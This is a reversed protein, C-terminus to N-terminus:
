FNDKRRGQVAIKQERTAERDRLREANERGIEGVKRIRPDDYSELKSFRNAWGDWMLSEKGTWGWSSGYVSGAVDDAPYGKDLAAQAQNSWEGEDPHGQLPVLHLSSLHNQALLHKYVIVSDDVLLKIIPGALDKTEDIEQILQMREEVGLAKAAETLSERDRYVRLSDEEMRAELWDHALRSDAKFMSKLDHAEKVHKVVALRWVERLSTRVSPPTSRRWEGMAAAGAIEGDEHRLLLLVHHEPIESRMCSFEIANAMGSLSDLSLQLLKQSPASMSLVTLAGIWMLRPHKFCSELVIELQSANVTKIRDIFPHILDSPAQVEILAKIWAMPQDTEKAIEICVSPSMRPWTRGSLSAEKEFMVLRKAIEQPSSKAWDVALTNARRLTTKQFKDINRLREIPFLVEYEPDIEISLKTRLSEATRKAWQLIGPHDKALGVVDKLFQIAGQRKIEMIQEPLNQVPKRMYAWNEVIDQVPRWDKIQTSQLFSHVRPWMNSLETLEDANLYGWRLTLTDGAGPDQESTEFDPLLSLQVANLTVGLNNGAKHWELAVDLLTERRPVATQKGPWASKIWDEILRLPQDPHSHPERKDSTAATLLHPIVVGPIHFLAPRIISPMREPHDQLVWQAEAAGLGAYSTWVLGSTSQEVLNRLLCDPVAGERWCSGILTLAADDHSPVLQIVETIDSSLAGRFFADRVLAHRLAEPRVSLTTENVEDIVGGAALQTVSDRVRMEPLGLYSAAVKLRMGADGGVALISLIQIAEKGVLPEFTLRVDTSLAEGLAVQRTSGTLCLRALTVALGPRGDAQDVLEHLLGNPGQIGVNKIVELIEDRTLLRLERISSGPVQLAAAVQDRQGPWCNALIRFDAHTDLRWQRLQRILDLNSHADDLILARPNESRLNKAIQPLDKSVIFLGDVPSSVAHLLFTKGSGPPGCLLLDGPSNELWSIDDSRGILPQPIVPRHSAPLASLAPPDGTLNLLDVCWRPSRYLRDAIAEQTYIQRLAFGLSSTAKYINRIREPTLPRSTVLLAERRIGGSKVYSRLNKKLNRIVEDSTTCVLPFPPGKADAVAGDMGADGGGRIPVLTPWEDRLLDAACQEFLDPDLPHSLGNLIDRYFPDRIM